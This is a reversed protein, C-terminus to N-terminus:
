FDLGIVDPGESGGLVDSGPITPHFPTRASLMNGM